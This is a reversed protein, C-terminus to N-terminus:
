RHLRSNKDTFISLRIDKPNFRSLTKSESGKRSALVEALVSEM